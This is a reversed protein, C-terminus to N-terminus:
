EDLINKLTRLGNQKKREQSKQKDAKRKKERAQQEKRESEEIQRSITHYLNKLGTWDGQTEEKHYLEKDDRSVSLVYRWNYSTCGDGAMDTSNYSTTENKLHISLGKKKWIHVLENGNARWAKFDLGEVIRYIKDEIRYIEEEAIPMAKKRVQNTM